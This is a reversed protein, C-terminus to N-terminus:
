KGVQRSAAKAGSIEVMRVGFHEGVVVVEGMGFLAGNIRVEDGGAQRPVERELKILSGERLNMLEEISLRTRGLEITVEVDLNRANTEQADM